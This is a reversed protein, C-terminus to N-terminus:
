DARIFCDSVFGHVRTRNNVVYTWHDKVEGNPCTVADATGHGGHWTYRDGPNGHGRVKGNLRPTERIKVGHGTFDGGPAAAWAPVAPLLVGVALASVAALLITRMM